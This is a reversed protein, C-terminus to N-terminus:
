EALRARIKPYRAIHERSLEGYDIEGEVPRARLVAGARRRQAALELIQGCLTQYPTVWGFVLDITVLCLEMLEEDPRAAYDTSRQQLGEIIPHFLELAVRQKELLAAAWRILFNTDWNSQQAQEYLEDFRRHWKNQETRGQDIRERLQAILAYRTGTNSGFAVAGILAGAPLDFQSTDFHAPM